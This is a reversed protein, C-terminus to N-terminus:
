GRKMPFGQPDFHWDEFAFRYAHDVRPDFHWANSRGFRIAKQMMTLDLRWKGGEEVLFWPSCKREEPPYRVVALDRAGNM